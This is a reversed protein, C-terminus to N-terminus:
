AALAQAIHRTIEELTFPKSIVKHEISDIKHVQQQQNAYGSMMLIKVAPYEASVAKALALGDMEPM